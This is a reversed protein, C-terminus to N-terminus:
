RAAPPDIVLRLMRQAEDARAVAEQRTAGIALIHGVRKAADTLAPVESGVAPYVVADVIGPMARVQELGEIARLTGAVPCLFRVLAPQDRDPRGANELEPDEFAVGLLRAYLDVGSALRTVDADFGGGMRAATEFLVARDPAVAVQSYCPGRLLGLARAGRRAADIAREVGAADLSCPHVESRMVGLPQTGPFVERDTVCYSVLTGNEVWGNVSVEHGVICEEVVAGGGGHSQTCAHDFAAQLGDPSNVKSVGRQGWGHAPKFVLPYGVESAFARVQEITSCGEFRPVPLGAARYGARMADKAQCRHITQPDAYFPLGLEHAAQGTTTLALESGTTAIGSAGSKRFAQVIAAVDGTSAQIFHDVLPVGIAQPNLDAGTTAFGRERAARILGLQPFGCGVILVHKM